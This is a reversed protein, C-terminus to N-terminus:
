WRSTAAAVLAAAVPGATSARLVHPGLLVPIGGAETLLALEDPDIGGEPGVVLAVVQAEALSSGREALVASLTSTAEEHCLLVVGGEDALSRVWAALGRSDVVPAVTPVWARRAQKAAALAVAEWKARAKAAKPGTWRVISRNAQWPVVEDIGVETSTEVAQEDRGGKALAQVLVLRPSPAGELHVERVIVDLGSKDAAAVECVMRLGRGDALDIWEGVGIRKVGAHRGEAGGLHARSGVALDGACPTLDASSFVQRTM